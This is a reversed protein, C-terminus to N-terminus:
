LLGRKELKIKEIKDHCPKCVSVLDFLPENYIFDYNLHHVQTAINTECAKCKYNDRELVKKRKEQWKESQLYKSYENLLERRNQAYENRRHQSQREYFENLKDDNFEPLLAVKYSGGVDSHKYMKGDTSGCVFCQKKLMLDGNAKKKQVYELVCENCNDM